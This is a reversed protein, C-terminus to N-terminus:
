NIEPGDFSEPDSWASELVITITGLKLGDDSFSEKIQQPTVTKNVAPTVYMYSTTGSELNEISARNNPSRLAVAAEGSASSFKMGIKSKLVEPLSGDASFTFNVNIGAENSENAKVTFTGYKKEGSFSDSSTWHAEVTSQYTKSEPNWGTKREPHYTFILGTWTVTVSYTSPGEAMPAALLPSEGTVPEEEPEQAADPQADSGKVDTAPDRSIESEEALADTEPLSPSETQGDAEQTEPEGAPAAAETGDTEDIQVNTEPEAPEGSLTTQGPATSDVATEPIVEVAAADEGGGDAEMAFVTASVCTLLSLALLLSILKKM